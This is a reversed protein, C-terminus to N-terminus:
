NTVQEDRGFRGAGLEIAAAIYRRVTKRDIRVGQAIFSERKGKSWRRLAHQGPGCRASRGQTEEGAAESAWGL